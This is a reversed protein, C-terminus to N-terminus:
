LSHRKNIPLNEISKLYNFLKIVFVKKIQVAPLPASHSWNLSNIGQCFIKKREEKKEILIL